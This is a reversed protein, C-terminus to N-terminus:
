TSCDCNACSFDETECGYCPIPGCCADDGGDVGCYELINEIVSCPPKTKGTIKYACLGDRIWGATNAIHPDPDDTKFNSLDACANEILQTWGNCSSEYPRGEKCATCDYLYYCIGHVNEEGEQDGFAAEPAQQMCADKSFVKCTGGSTPASGAESQAKGTAKFNERSHNGPCAGPIMGAGVRENACWTNKHRAYNM